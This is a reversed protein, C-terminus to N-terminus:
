PFSLGRSWEFYWADQEHYMGCMLPILSKWDEGEPTDELPGESQVGAAVFEFWRPYFGARGWGIMWLAGDDGVIFNERQIDMHCFVLPESDDFAVDAYLAPPDGDRVDFGMRRFIVNDNKHARVAIAVRDNFFTSLAAYSAFPGRPGRIEGWIPTDSKVALTGPALPGPISSRPHNPHITRLQQVYSRITFAIELRQPLSLDPWLMHLPIGSINEM